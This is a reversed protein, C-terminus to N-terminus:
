SILAQIGALSADAATGHHIMLSLDFGLLLAGLRGPTTFTMPNTAIQQGLEIIGAALLFTQPANPPFSNPANIYMALDFALLAEDPLLEATAAPELANATRYAALIDLEMMMTQAPDGFAAENNLGQTLEKSMANNVTTLAVDLPPPVATTVSPATGTAPPSTTPAQTEVAGIDPAAGAVRPQGRQDTSLNDPNSGADIAPSGPAPLMTQTPGGNNQLPGLLPNKGFINATNTGNITGSAGTTPTAQILDNSGNITTTQNTNRGVDLAGTQDTNGSVITSRLTLAASDSRFQLDTVWIGGGNSTNASNGAITCNDVALVGDYLVIGGGGPQSYGGSSTSTATNGSITCNEIASGAPTAYLFFGGGGFGAAQNGSITSDVITKVGSNEAFVGGGGRTAINGSITSDQITLTGSGYVSLGGGLGSSTNGSLVSDAVTLNVNSGNAAAFIAGGGSSGGGLTTNGNKLTLGSITVTSSSPAYAIDFIRSANNGDISIVGAGPGQITLSKSFAIEGSTLVITGSLGRAFNIIDGPNAAAVQARLSGSGSDLLNTVTLTAPVCREELAELQPQAQRTAPPVIRIHEQGFSSLRRFLGLM